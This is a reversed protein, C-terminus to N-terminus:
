QSNNVESRLQLALKGERGAADLGPVREDPPMVLLLPQLLQRFVFADELEDLLDTFFANRGSM